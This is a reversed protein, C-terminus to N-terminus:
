RRFATHCGQCSALVPGLARATGTLDNARSAKVLDVLQRHFAEDLQHFHALEDPNKPPRYAGSRLAQETAEKAAHVARLEHAVARVDGSGIGKVATVLAATLLRMEHQVPNAAASAAAVEPSENGDRKASCGAIALLAILPYGLHKM